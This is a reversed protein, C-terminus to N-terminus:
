APLIARLIGPVTAALESPDDIAPLIREAYLAVRHVPLVLRAQALADMGAKETLGLGASLWPALYATALEDTVSETSARDALLAAASLFPHTISGDSWDLFVPGMAGIIVEDAALDGHDLSDPVGSAALTRCAKVLAPIRRRLATAEDVTLGGPQGVMLLDDDALLTPVDIALRDMPAAVTGAAVLEGPESALVRQIEALRSMTAAWVAPEGDLASLAQGDVHETIIRGLARDAAVVPPVIGPDIDALMETLAVEHAFVPPVAKAWMRGRDTELSLLASRPRLWIQALENRRRIGADALRADVWSAMEVLWGPDHWPSAHAEPTISVRPEM